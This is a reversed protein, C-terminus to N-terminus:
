RKTVLLRISSVWSSDLSLLRRGDRWMALCWVLLSVTTAWAAGDQGAVKTLPITLLVLVVLSVASAYTVRNQLGTMNLLIASMGFVGNLILGASLIVITTNAARYDEGFSWALMEDGVFLFPATLLLTCTTMGLSAWSLLRQLREVDGQTHLQAIIPACTITFLTLPTGVLLSVSTAVRFLGVDSITAVAALMLIAFHGQLIRMGETLAMPLTSFWWRKREMEPATDKVGAPMARVLLRQTVVLSIVAAVIGLAMAMVPTLPVVCWAVIALLVSHLMPKMLVDPIQGSVIRQLGRLAASRISVQAAIPVLLVGALLTLGLSSSLGNGSVVLWAVVGTGIAASMLLSVRSSWRLVGKLRGAECKVHAAAVERTLLQPLGLETPVSLLAIISMAVGYVGYGEVGLGRALQVGVAFAFGMGAIRLGASGTVAKVLTPGLGPGALYSRLRAITSEGSM